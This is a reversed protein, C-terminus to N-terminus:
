PSRYSPALGGNSNDCSWIILFCYHFGNNSSSQSHHSTHVQPYHCKKQLLCMVLYELSIETVYHNALLAKQAEPSRWLKSSESCFWVPMLLSKFISWHWILCSCIFLSASTHYMLFLNTAALNFFFLLVKFQVCKLMTISLSLLSIFFVGAPM